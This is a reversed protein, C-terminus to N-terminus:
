LFFQTYKIVFTDNNRELLKYHWLVAWSFSSKHIILHTKVSAVENKWIANGCRVDVQFWKSRAEGWPSSKSCPSCPSTGRKVTEIHFRRGSTYPIYLGQKSTEELRFLHTVVSVFAAAVLDAPDAPCHVYIQMIRSLLANSTTIIFNSHQM